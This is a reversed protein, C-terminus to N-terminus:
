GCCHCDNPYHRWQCKDTQRNKKNTSHIFVFTTLESINTFWSHNLNQSQKLNSIM